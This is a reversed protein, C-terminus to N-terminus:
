VQLRLEPAGSRGDGRNCAPPRGHWWTAEMASGLSVM